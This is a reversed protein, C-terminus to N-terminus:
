SRGGQIKIAHVNNSVISVASFLLESGKDEQIGVMRWITEYKNLIIELNCIKNLIQRNEM